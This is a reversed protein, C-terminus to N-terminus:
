EDDGWDSIQRQVVKCQSFRHQPAYGNWNEAFLRARLASEFIRVEGDPWQVGWQTRLYTM